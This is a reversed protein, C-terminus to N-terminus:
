DATGTVVVRNGDLERGNLAAVAAAADRLDGYVVSGTARDRDVRSDLVQGFDSALRRVKEDSTRPSLNSLQIRAFM